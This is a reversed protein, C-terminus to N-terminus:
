PTPTWLVPVSVATPNRGSDAIDNQREQPNCEVCCALKGCTAQGCKACWGRLKGSGPEIKWHCGCHPCQLTEGRITIGEATVMEVFGHPKLSSFKM